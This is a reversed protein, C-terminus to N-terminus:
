KSLSNKKSLFKIARSLDDKTDISIPSNSVQLMKVKHGNDLFRLIEIDEIEENQSKKKLKGFSLLKDRPISYICVQRNGLMFMRSKNSPIPARSIYMLTQDNALVVKPVNPSIFDEASNIPCMANFICNPDRESANIIKLIDKPEVLPEDGQVNVYFKRKVKTAVEALRDTGTKCDASTMIVNIDNDLCHNKIREDDTAVIVLKEGVAQVCKDWVHKILSKGCLDVLPKGPFRSSQYRAPIVVLFDNLSIRPAYISGKRIPFTSHTLSKLPLAEPLSQYKLFADLVEQQRPDNSEYGDFGVLNLDVAGSKTLVCLAYSLALPSPITCNNERIIFNNDVVNLGYDLIEIEKIDQNAEFNLLKQPMVVPCNLSEYEEFDLLMRQPHSVIIANVFQPLLNRNINLCIVFPEYKKIYSVIASINSSVSDGSGVLLVSKNTLWGSANWTGTVSDDLNTYTAERLNQETFSSASSKSISDLISFLDSDEYRRDNLLSQVYTPHIGKNAAFHYYENPGWKYQALLEKFYVLAPQLEKPNINSVGLNSLEILLSETPVNGAGRGMGFITSDLWCVGANLASLTNALAMGKNNHSHFGLELKWGSKLSLSIFSVEDPTMSGLSDAFYITHVLNWKSITSAANHYEEQTKGNAQMLNLAVNYGLGRLICILDYCTSYQKFNVAVRILSIKSKNKEAFLLNLLSNLDTSQDLFDSANIMVAYHLDEPLSLTDLYDDTTYYYPGRFYDDPLSRFGLEVFNIGSKKCSILYDNVLDESFNWNNYYGGDRLTCDLLKPSNM